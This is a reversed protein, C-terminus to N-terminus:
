KQKTLVETFFSAFIIFHGKQILNETSLVHIFTAFFPAFGLFNNVDFFSVLACRKKLFKLVILVFINIHHINTVIFEPFFQEAMSESLALGFSSIVNTSPFSVM